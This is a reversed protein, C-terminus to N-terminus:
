KLNRIHNIFIQIVDTKVNYKQGTANSLTLEQKLGIEKEANQTSSETKGELQTIGGTCITAWTNHMQVTWLVAPNMEEM